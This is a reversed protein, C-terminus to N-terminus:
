FCDLQVVFDELTDSDSTFYVSIFDGAAFDVTTDYYSNTFKTMSGATTTLTVAMSTSGDIVNGMVPEANKCVTVTTTSVHTENGTIMIGSVILPQQCRYKAVPVTTDPNKPTSNKFDTTGPWLYGSKTATITGRLAYFMTTPYIYTSFPKGGASKTVLDTGPGIQIGPSALYTPNSLMTPTTQLIDSSTYNEGVAPKVTGITTSRLQISGVNASDNTEVGVYSGTSAVNTPAAVYINLDRTTVTNTGTIYIGRAYGNGNSFVNITSGKLCNFSFSSSNLTSTGNCHIGFASIVSDSPINRGDVTLVCTRIKSTSTSTGGFGIGILSYNTLYSVLNLTLNEVRCNEGMTLLVTNDTATYSVNTTQVSQGTLTTYDPLIIKETYTGSLLHINVNTTANITGRQTIAKAITLFPSTLSGNNTNNGNPAVYLDYSAQYSTGTPGTPGAPGTAGAPGAPGTDGTFGTLGAPGTQGIAGTAGAPGTQGTVGAPGTQGTAGTAGAPGTQGTVGTAGTPGAPGTAGSGGNDPSGLNILSVLGIGAIYRYTAPM